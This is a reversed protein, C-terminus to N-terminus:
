LSSHKNKKRKKINDFLTYEVPNPTYSGVSPLKFGPASSKDKKEKKPKAWGNSKKKPAARSTYSGIGPTEMSNRMSSTVFNSGEDKSM